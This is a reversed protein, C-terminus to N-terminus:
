VTNMIAFKYISFISWFKKSCLHFFNRPIPYELISEESPVDQVKEVFLHTLVDQVAPVKTSQLQERLRENEAHLEAARRQWYEVSNAPLKDVPIPSPLGRIGSIFCRQWASLAKM